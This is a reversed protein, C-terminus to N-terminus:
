RLRRMQDRYLLENADPQGLEAIMQVVSRISLMVDPTIGREGDVRGSVTTTVCGRHM